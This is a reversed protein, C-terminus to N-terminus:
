DDEPFDVWLSSFLQELDLWYHTSVGMVYPGKPPYQEDNFFYAIYQLATLMNKMAGDDLELVYRGPEASVLRPFDKSSKLKAILEEVTESM